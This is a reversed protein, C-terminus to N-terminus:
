HALASGASRGSTVPRRAEAHCGATGNAPRPSTLCFRWFRRYCSQCRLPRLFLCRALHRTWGRQSVWFTANQCQPCRIM